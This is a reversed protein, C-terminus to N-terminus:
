ILAGAKGDAASHAAAAAYLAIADEPEARRRQRTQPAQQQTAILHALFPAALHAGRGVPHAEKDAEVVMLSRCTERRDDPGASDDDQRGM